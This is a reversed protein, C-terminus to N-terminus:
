QKDYPYSASFDHGKGDKAYRLGRPVVASTPSVYSTWYPYSSTFDFGKGDKAYLARQYSQCPM